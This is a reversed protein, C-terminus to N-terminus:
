KWIIKLGMKTHMTLWRKLVRAMLFHGFLLRWPVYLPSEAVIRFTMIIPRLFPRRNEEDEIKCLIWNRSNWWSMWIKALHWFKTLASCCSNQLIYCGCLRKIICASCRTVFYTQEVMMRALYYHLDLLYVYM